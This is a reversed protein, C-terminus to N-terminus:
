PPRYHSSQIPISTERCDGTALHDKVMTSRYGLVPRVCWSKVVAQGLGVVAPDIGVRHGLGLGFVGPDVLRPTVQTLM